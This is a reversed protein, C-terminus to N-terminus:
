QTYIEVLGKPTEIKIYREIRNVELLWDEVIPIFIEKGFKNKIQFLTQPTQDNINAIHGIQGLEKDIVMFNIVEHYYFKNGTLPPLEEIPLYVKKGVMINAKEEDDIDAIKVILNDNPLLNSSSIFFPTFIGEKEIYITKLNKYFSPEDTDLYLVMNGKFGHKKTLVGLFYHTEASM